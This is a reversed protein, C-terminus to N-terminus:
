TNHRMLTDSLILTDLVFTLCKLPDNELQQPSFRLVRWGLAVATNMKDRDDDTGHRGGGKTQWANGDVEVAVKKDIWAFDFRWKRKHSEKAFLFERVPMPVNFPALTIWYHHFIDAKDEKPVTTVEWRGAGSVCAGGRHLYM